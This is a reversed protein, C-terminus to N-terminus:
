ERLEKEEDKCNYLTNGCKKCVTDYWTFATGCELCSWRFKQQELWEQTGKEQITELNKLVVSHHPSEDNRFAVLRDCPYEACQFCFEVQNNEACEKIDCTRCYVSVTDSKCGHCQIDEPNMDWEKATEQVTDEKNAILVPCAGCFLGCYSDEQFKM